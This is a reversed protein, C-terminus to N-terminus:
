FRPKRKKVVPEPKPKNKKIKAHLRAIKRSIYDGQEDAVGPQPPYKLHYADIYLELAEIAKEYEGAKEHVSAIDFWYDFRSNDLAKLKYYIALAKNFRKKILLEIAYIEENKIQLKWDIEKYKGEGGPCHGGNEYYDLLEFQEFFTKADIIIMERQKRIEELRNKFELSFNEGIVVIDTDDDFQDVLFGGRKELLRMVTKKHRNIHGHIFVKKEDFSPYAFWDGGAEQKIMENRSFLWLKYTPPKELIHRSKSRREGLNYLVMYLEDEGLTDTRDEPYKPFPGWTKMDLWHSAIVIDTDDDVQEQVTAGYKRLVNKLEEPNDYYIYPQGFIFVKKGDFINTGPPIKDLYLNM